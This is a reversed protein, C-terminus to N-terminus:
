MNVLCYFIMKTDFAVSIGNGRKEPLRNTGHIFFIKDGCLQSLITATALYFIPRIEKQTRMHKTQANVQIQYKYKNSLQNILRPQPFRWQILDLRLENTCPIYCYIYWLFLHLTFFTKFWILSKYKRFFIKSHFIILTDKKQRQYEPLTSLNFCPTPTDLYFFGSLDVPILPLRVILSEVSLDWIQMDVPWIM